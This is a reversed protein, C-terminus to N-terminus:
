DQPRKSRLRRPKAINAEVLPRIQQLGPTDGPGLLQAILKRQASWMKSLSRYDVEQPTQGQKCMRHIVENLADNVEYLEDRSFDKLATTSAADLAATHEICRAAVDDPSASRCWVHSCDDCVAFYAALMQAQDNVTIQHEIGDVFVKRSNCAPCHATIYQSLFHKFDDRQAENILWFAATEIPSPCPVTPMTPTTTATTNHMNM